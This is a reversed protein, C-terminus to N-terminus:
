DLDWSGSGGGSSGVLFDTPRQLQTVVLSAAHLRAASAELTFVCRVGEPSATLYLEQMRIWVRFRGDGLPEFRQFHEQDRNLKLRISTQGGGEVQAGSCGGTGELVFDGAESEEGEVELWVDNFAKGRGEWTFSIEAPEGEELRTRTVEEGPEDPDRSEMRVLWGTCLCCLLLAGLAAGGCGLVWRKAGGRRAVQDGM